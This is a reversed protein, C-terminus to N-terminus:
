RDLEGKGAYSGIPTAWNNLDGVREGTLPSKEATTTYVLIKGARTPQAQISDPELLRLIM